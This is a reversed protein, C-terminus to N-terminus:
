RGRWFAYALVLWGSAHLTMYFLALMWPLGPTFGVFIIQNIALVPGVVILASGVRPLVNARYTALGIPISGLLGLLPVFDVLEFLAVPTGLVGATIVNGFAFITRLVLGIVFLAWGARALLGYESQHRKYLGIVGVALLACTPMDLLHRFASSQLTEGFPHLTDLIAWWVAPIVVFLAAGVLACSETTKHALALQPRAPVALISRRSPDLLQTDM